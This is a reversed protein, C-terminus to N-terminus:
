LRLQPRRDAPRLLEGGRELGEIRPREVDERDDAVDLRRAAEEALLSLEEEGGAGLACATAVVHEGPCAPHEELYAAPDRALALLEEDHLM